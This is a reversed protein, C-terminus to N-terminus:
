RVVGRANSSIKEMNKEWRKKRIYAEHHEELFVEWREGSCAQTAEQVHGEDDLGHVDAQPWARLNGRLDSAEAHGAVPRLHAHGM